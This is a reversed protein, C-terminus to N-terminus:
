GEKKEEQKKQNKKQKAKKKKEEQKKQYEELTVFVGAGLLFNGFSEEVKVPKGKPFVVTRPHRTAFINEVEKEKKKGIYVVEM